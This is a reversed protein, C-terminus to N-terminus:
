LGRAMVVIVLRTCTYPPTGHRPDTCKVGAEGVRGLLGSKHGMLTRRVACVAQPVRRPEMTDEWWGLAGLAVLAEDVTRPWPFPSLVHRGQGAADESLFLAGHVVGALRAKTGDNM